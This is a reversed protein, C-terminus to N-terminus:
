AGGEQTLQSSDEPAPFVFIDWILAIITNLQQIYYHIYCDDNVRTM